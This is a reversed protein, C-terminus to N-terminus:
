PKPAPARKRRMRMSFAETESPWRKKMERLVWATGQKVVKEKDRMLPELYRLLKGPTKSLKVLGLISVASARRQFRDEAFRWPEYEKLTVQGNVLLPSLVLDCLVDVHAWNRIGGNFWRTLGAVSTADLESQFNQVFRIAISAEEFKGSRVLEEGVALFGEWGLDQYERLWSEQQSNWFDHNRDLLGWADYGESFFRAWKTARERDAHSACYARIDEM